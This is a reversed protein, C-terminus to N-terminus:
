FGLDKETLVRFEWGRKKCYEQAAEWKSTNTGYTLVENIFRRTRRKPVKPEKTEKYPKIEWLMERVSGDRAKYRVWIDPFYRRPTGHPYNESIKAKDVYPIMIEESSWQIISPSEDLYKFVRAEWGSRFVINRINGKYKHPFKPQFLGQHYHKEDRM